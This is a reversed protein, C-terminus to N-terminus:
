FALIKWTRKDIVCFPVNEPKEAKGLIAFSATKTIQESVGLLIAEQRPIFKRHDGGAGFPIKKGMGVLSALNVKAIDGYTHNYGVPEERLDIDVVIEPLALEFRDGNLGTCSM